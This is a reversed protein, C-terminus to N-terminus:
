LLAYIIKMSMLMIYSETKDRNITKYVCAVFLIGTIEGVSSPM